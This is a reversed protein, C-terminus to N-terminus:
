FSKWNCIDNACIIGSIVVTEIGGGPFNFGRSFIEEETMVV